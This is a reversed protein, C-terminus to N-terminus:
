EYIFWSKSSFLWSVGINFRRIQLNEYPRVAVGNINETFDPNLFDQFYYEGYIYFGPSVGIGARVSHNFRNVRNSFWESLVVEKNAREGGFFVKEKYHFNYDLGYHLTFFLADGINQKIGLEPTLSIVRKKFRDGDFDYIVGENNLLISGNLATSEGLKIITRNLPFSWSFRPVNNLEQGNQTITGFQLMQAQASYSLILLVLLTLM